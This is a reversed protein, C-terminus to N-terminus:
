CLHTPKKILTVAATRLLLWSCCRKWDASAPSSLLATTEAGRAKGESAKPAKNYKHAVKETTGKLERPGTGPPSLRATLCGACSSLAERHCQPTHIHKCGYKMPVGNCSIHSCFITPKKKTKEAHSVHWVRRESASTQFLQPWSPSRAASTCQLFTFEQLWAPSLSAHGLVKQGM